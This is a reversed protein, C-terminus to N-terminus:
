AADSSENGPVIVPLVIRAGRPDFGDVPESPVYGRANSIVSVSGCQYRTAVHTHGHVWAAIPTTAVWADMDSTYASEIMQGRDSPRSGQRSPAHHTVVITPYGSPSALEGRLWQRANAHEAM